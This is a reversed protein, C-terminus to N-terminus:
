YNAPISCPEIEARPLKFPSCTINSEEYFPNAVGTSPDILLVWTAAVNPAKYTGDPDRQPLTVTSCINTPIYEPNTYETGYPIPYSIAEGLYTFKGDYQNQIYDYTILDAIDCKEYIMKLTRLTQFHTIAPMGLTDIM